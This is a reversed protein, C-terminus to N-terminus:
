TQTQAKMRQIYQRLLDSLDMDCEKAVQIMFERFKRERHTHTARLKGTRGLLCIAMVITFPNGELLSRNLCVEKSLDWFVSSLRTLHPSHEDHKILFGIITIFNYVKPKFDIMHLIEWEMKLIIGNNTDSTAKKTSRYGNSENYKGLIVSVVHALEVSYYQSTPEDAFTKNPRGAIIRSTVRAEIGMDIPTGEALLSQRERIKDIKVQRKEEDTLKVYPTRPGKFSVFYDGLQVAAIMSDYGHSNVRGLDFVLEVFEERSIETPLKLIQHSYM